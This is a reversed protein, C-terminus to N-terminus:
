RLQQLIKFANIIKKSQYSKNNNTKQKKDLWSFRYIVVIRSPNIKHCKYYLLHACDFIFDRGRMSKELKIQYNKILSHFVEETVQDEKDNIM